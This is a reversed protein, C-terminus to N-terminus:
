QPKLQHLVSPNCHHQAPQLNLSPYSAPILQHLVTATAVSSLRRLRHQPRWQRPPAPRKNRLRPASVRPSPHMPPSSVTATASPTFFIESLQRLAELQSDKVPAFPSSPHPHRLASMIYRSVEMAADTSSITPMKYLYPFFEVTRTIRKVRTKTIYVKHCRYHESANGIYWGDLGHPVWMKRITPTDYAIVKTGPPALPTANYDFAGNLIAEASIKLNIASPRLLNLTTTAQPILRCWLHMPFSPDVSSLGVILHDKFTAIAWEAANNRHLHHPVLQYAVDNNRFYKKLAEPCENDLIQVHSKFGRNTLYEYMKTTVRIIEEQSRNKMPEALIANIDHAFLVMVYKIGKSSTISFKGTQDTFVKDSLELMQFSIIIIERVPAIHPETTMVIDKPTPPTKIKPQTSRLNKRIQRLHGKVTAPSKPLHKKVLESTLGPWSTYFGTEITETWTSPVPSFAAKHLYTVIDRKKHLEYNKKSQYTTPKPPSTTSIDIIWMGTTHDCHGHLSLAPDHRHNISITYQNLVVNYENDCFQDLCLLAKNYMSPSIHTNRVAHPLNPIDLLATHSATMM